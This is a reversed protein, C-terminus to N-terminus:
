EEEDEEEEEEDEDEEGDEDEEERDGEDSPPLNDPLFRPASKSRSLYGRIIAQARVVGRRSNSEEQM